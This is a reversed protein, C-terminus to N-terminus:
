LKGEDHRRQSSRQDEVENGTIGTVDLPYSQMRHSKDDYYWQKGAYYIHGRWDPRYYFWVQYQDRVEDAQPIRQDYLSDAIRNLQAASLDKSVPERLLVVAQSSDSAALKYNVSSAGSSGSCHTLLGLLFLGAIVMFLQRNFLLTNM